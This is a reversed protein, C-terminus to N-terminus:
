NSIRVAHDDHHSLALDSADLAVDLGTEFELDELFQLRLIAADFHGLNRHQLSQRILALDAPLVAFPRGLERLMNLFIVFLFPQFCMWRRDWAM